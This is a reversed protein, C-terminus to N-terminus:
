TRTAKAPTKPDVVTMVIEHKIAGGDPGSLSAELREGYKKHKLKSAAWKRAEVRLRSRQIHEGNLEYGPNAKDARMMWDNRGDDSIEIVEEFYTDAQDERARAYNDQFEKNERLWQYFTSVGPMDPNDCIRVLSRRNALGECIKDAIETTYGSPRGSNGVAYKNGKPAAM